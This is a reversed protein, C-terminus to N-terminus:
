RSTAIAADFVCHGGVYTKRATIEHIQEPPVAVPDASLVVFDARKGPTISGREGEEFQLYASGMTFVRLAEVPSLRQSAGYVKGNSAARRTVLSEVREMVNASSIPYDSTGGICVGADLAHRNPELWDFRATGFDELKEGNERIYSHPALCIHAAKVRALIGATMVSAHEIRHRPDAGPQASQAAIIADVARDIERDGNAHIAVQLGAAHAEHVLENLEAPQVKPELGYYNEPHAYPEYLLATRGSFSNGAFIKLTRLTLGDVHWAPDRRHAILWPLQDTRLMAYITVPMGSQRLDRYIELKDLSTWADAVGTLGYSLFLGFERRYAERLETREAPPPARGAIAKRVIEQATELVVGNPEGDPGREFKGGAPDPTARTVGALQLALSNAVLRHGSSHIIILPHDAVVSDLDRALPHGGVAEDAYGNAIIAQGPPTVKAKAALKAYLAARSTVGDRAFVQLQGRPSMEDFLPEPHMHTDIFGPTVTQGHADLLETQPGRLPELETRRGVAVFRGARVAFAEAVPTTDDMTRVHANFVILDASPPAAAAVAAAPSLSVIGAIIPSLWATIPIRM